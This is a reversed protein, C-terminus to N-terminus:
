LRALLRMAEEEVRAAERLLDGARELHSRECSEGALAILAAVETWLSAATAYLGQASRVEARGVTTACEALFDRYLNRFLAGGTGGREMLAAAHPLDRAPDAARELWGRVLRSAKAIGRHGLNAIPAALFAEACSRLAPLLREEWSVRGASLELTFSRHRATM